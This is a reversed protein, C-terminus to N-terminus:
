ERSVRGHRHPLLVFSVSKLIFAVCLASHPRYNAVTQDVHLSFVSVIHLLFVGLCFGIHSVRRKFMFGSIYCSIHDRKTKEEWHQTLTIKGRLM